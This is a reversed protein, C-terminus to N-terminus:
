ISDNKLLFRESFHFYRYSEYKLKSNNEFEENIFDLNYKKDRLKITELNLEREFFIKDTNGFAEKLMKSFERLQYHKVRCNSSCYKVNARNHYFVKGCKDLM